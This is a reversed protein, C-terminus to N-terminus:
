WNSTLNYNYMCLKRVTDIIQRREVNSKATKMVLIWFWIYMITCLVWCCFTKRVTIELVDCQLRITHIHLRIAQYQSPLLSVNLQCYKTVNLFWKKFDAWHFSVHFFVATFQNRVARFCVKSVSQCVPWCLHPSVGAWVLLDATDLM